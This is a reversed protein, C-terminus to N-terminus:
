PSFFIWVSPASSLAHSDLSKEIRFWRLHVQELAFGLGRCWCGLSCLSSLHSLKKYRLDSLQFSKFEYNKGCSLLVWFSQCINSHPGTKLLTIVLYIFFCFYSIRFPFFTMWNSPNWVQHCTDKGASGDGLGSSWAKLWQECSGRHHPLGSEM